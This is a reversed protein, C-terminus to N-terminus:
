QEGRERALAAAYIARRNAETMPVNELTRTAPSDHPSVVLQVPDKPEHGMRTLVEVLDEEFRKQWSNAYTRQSFAAIDATAIGDLSVLTFWEDGIKVVPKEGEWRVGTFPARKPYDTKPLGERHPSDAEVKFQRASAKLIECAAAEAQVSDGDNSTVAIVMNKEPIFAVLAYWYTNTGNHWYETYPINANPENRVWGCANADLEPTHLLKYTEASLLKRRGLEGLMHENAFTCLNQLSMHVTAAPGMIPTNDATDDVAVKGALVTRHGRPQELTEDASKPPGFGADTLKLPEFVERRMLDEWTAGTIKEAMAAAIPYGVNSYVHREGPPYAPKDAIVGLVADRRAATSERGLAPRKGWLNTPFNAPAGATDTLLQKLTVPKWDAHVPADPFIQGVTDTWKMTGSEVLRALMTATISKTIGGLHFQDSIELPVGSSEKREGDAAAAEVKGDVTVMAALGVLNKEKRQETVVKALAEGAPGDIKAPGDYTSDTKGLTLVLVAVVYTVIALAAIILWRRLIRSRAVSKTDSSTDFGETADEGGLSALLALLEQRRPELQTRIARQNIHDIFGYVACLFVALYIFFGVGGVVVWWNRALLITIQWSVQAFFVLISITFPLLYWWFVNRLLWIQHDVQTLSTKVCKLLPEGPDSPKQPHRIRDVLFFGIMWIIAPVTLWWTWPQSKTLGQYFWYPLLLLGIGVELIDRRLIMARFDIQNRQVQQRLLSADITVRTQSSQAQWAQQYKDPDM